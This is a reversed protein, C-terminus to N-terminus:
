SGADDCFTATGGGVLSCAFCKELPDDGDVADCSEAPALRCSRTAGLDDRTCTSCQVGDEGTETVCAGPEPLDSPHGAMLDPFTARDGCLGTSSGDRYRCEICTVDGGGDEITCSATGPYHCSGSAGGPFGWIANCVNFTDGGGQTFSAVPASDHDISCDVAVRGRPDTCELCGDRVTCDGVLCEPPAGGAEACTTCVLGFETLTSTCDDDCEGPDHSGGGDDPASPGEEEEEAPEDSSGKVPRDDDLSAPQGTEEGGGDLACGGLALGALSTMAVMMMCLKTM